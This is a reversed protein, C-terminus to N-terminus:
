FGACRRTPCFPTPTLWRVQGKNNNGEWEGEYVNGNPYTMKGQVRGRIVGRYMGCMRLFVCMDVHVFALM